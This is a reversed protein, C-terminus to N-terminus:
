CYYIIAVPSHMPGDAIERTQLARHSACTQLAWSFSMIVLKLNGQERDQYHTLYKSDQVTSTVNWYAICLNSSM